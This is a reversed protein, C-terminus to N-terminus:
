KPNAVTPLALEASTLRCPAGAEPVPRHATWLIGNVLLRRFSEQAFNDHSHGLTTGFSRGGQANSRELTWAVVQEKGDVVVKLLPKTDQHFKLNLYFEDNWEGESWGRCVPHKPDLAILRAKAFKIGSGPTFWGGLLALYAPGNPQSAGTGWHIATFGLGEAMLKEFAKRQPDALVIDGAPRSYYVIAKVGALTKADPWDQVVKTEVGQTQELCKALLGCEHLYLHMGAPHDPKTGVLVIRTKLEEAASKPALLGLPFLIVMLALWSIRFWRSM